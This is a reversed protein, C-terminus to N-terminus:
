LYLPNFLSTKKHQRVVKAMRLSEVYLLGRLLTLTFYSLLLPCPLLLSSMSDPKTKLYTIASMAGTNATAITYTQVYLAYQTYPKLILITGVFQASADIEPRVDVTKWRTALCLVIANYRHPTLKVCTLVSM